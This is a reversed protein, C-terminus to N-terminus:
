RMLPLQRTLKNVVTRPGHLAVGAYELDSAPTAALADMYAGYDRSRRAVENFGVVTLDQEDAGAKIERLREGSAVLTPVPHPNLGAHVGGDADKTDAAVSNELRGGLALGLVVGANAAIAPPLDERLIVVLKTDMTM